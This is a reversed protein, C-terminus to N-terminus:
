TTIKLLPCEVVIPYDSARDGLLQLIFSTLMLHDAVDDTQLFELLEPINYARVIRQEMIPTTKSAM